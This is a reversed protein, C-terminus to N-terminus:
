EYKQWFKYRQFSKYLLNNKNNEFREINNFYYNTIVDKPTNKLRKMEEILKFMRKDFTLETDYSHDIFDDFVDYGDIRLKKITNPNGFVLPMQYMLFPKLSKECIFLESQEISAEVVIHFYSDDFDEIDMDFESHVNHMPYHSWNKSDGANKLNELMSMFRAAYNEDEWLNNLTDKSLLNFMHEYEPYGFDYGQKSWKNTGWTMGLSWITINKDLMDEMGLYTLFLLREYRPRRNYCLFYSQRERKMKIRERCTNSIKNYTVIGPIDHDGPSRWCYSLRREYLNIHEINLDKHKQKHEESVTDRQKWGNTIAEMSLNNYIGQPIYKKYNVNDFQDDNGTVWIINKFSLQPFTEFIKKELFHSHFYYTEWSQDLMLYCKGDNIDKEIYDHFNYQKPSLCFMEILLQSNMHIPYFYKVDKDKISDYDTIFLDSQTDLTKGLIENRNTFYKLYFDIGKEGTTQSTTDIKNNLDEHDFDLHNIKGTTINTPLNRCFQKNGFEDTITDFVLFM